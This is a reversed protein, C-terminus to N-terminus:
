SRVKRWSWTLVVLILLSSASTMWGWAYLSPRYEIAVVQMGAPVELGLFASNVRLMRASGQVVRWGSLHTVSSVLVGGTAADIALRYGNPTVDLIKILGSGPSTPGRSSVASLMFDRNDETFRDVEAPPLSQVEQPFFFIPFPSPNEWVVEDGDRFAETWGPAVPDPGGLVYKIGLYDFLPQDIEDRQLFMGAKRPKDLRKRLLQLAVGPRMPDFGRPDWLGFFAAPIYPLFRGSLATIRHPEPTSAKADQLFRAVPPPALSHEAGVVPHYNSNLAYLDLGVLLPAVRGLWKARQSSALLAVAALATAASVHRSTRQRPSELAWPVLLLSAAAATCVAALTLRLRKRGLEQLAYAAAVAVALVWWARWRGTQLHALGPIASMIAFLPGIRWASILAVLGAGFIIRGPKSGALFGSVALALTLLGAYSSTQENFNSPGTWNGERPSGLSRPNVLNSIDDPRLTGPSPTANGVHWRESAPVTELLPFTAPASLILGLVLAAGARAVTHFPKESSAAAFAALSAAVLVLQLTTEPHGSLASSAVCISALLLGSVSRARLRLVGTFVGPAWVLAMSLPHYLWNVSYTSLAFAIAGLACSLRGLKLEALLIHTLLLAVLMQWSASLTMARPTPVGLAMLHLPAFPASQANGLLPQGTGMEHSWLPPELALHRRRVLERFPLIQLVVDTLLPNKAEPQAELEASWPRFQYVFDLPLQLSTTALPIAFFGGAVALYLALNRWRLQSWLRALGALM